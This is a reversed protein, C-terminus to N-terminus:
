VKRHTPGTGNDGGFTTAGPGYELRNKECALPSYFEKWGAIARPIGALDARPPTRVVLASAAMLETVAGAQGQGIEVILAGGSKLAGAAAPILSRYADLGDAGGDLALRPDHDRVERSLLPIDSSCIYPPNAVILDIAGGLASAFDGLVFATRSATGLARANARATHLADVARDIAVGFAGPIESLLAVILAGSGTGIDVIVPHDQAPMTTVCELALEVVTESDARPDLTAASLAFSLGWFERVAAIRSVPEGEVRRRAFDRVHASEAASLLRDAKTVLSTLDLGLAAAILARAEGAANEIGAANLTAAIQRRAEAITPGPETM